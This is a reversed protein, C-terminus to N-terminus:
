KTYKPSTRPREATTSSQRAIVRNPITSRVRLPSSDNGTMFQKEIENFSSVHQPFALECFAKVTAVDARFVKEMNPLQLKIAVLEGTARLRARHVQGISAVGLPQPDFDTFVEDFDVRMEEKMKQRIFDRAEEGRFVPPLNDQTEKVWQMYRAPVFDDQYHACFM